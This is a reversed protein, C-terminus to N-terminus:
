DPVKVKEPNINRWAVIDALHEECSRMKDPNVGLERARQLWFHVTEVALQDYAVITFTPVEDPIGNFFEKCCEKPM